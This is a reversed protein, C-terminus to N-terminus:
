EISHTHLIKGKRPTPCFYGHKAYFPLTAPTWASETRTNRLTDGLEVQAPIGRLTTQLYTMHFCLPSIDVANVLMQMSPDFGAKQL